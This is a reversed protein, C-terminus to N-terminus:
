SHSDLTSSTVPAEAPQAPPVAPPPPVPKPGTSGAAALRAPAPPRKGRQGKPRPEPSVPSAEIGFRAAIQPLRSAAKRVVTLLAASPEAPLSVPEVRQHVPAFQLADLVTTWRDPGDDATLAASAAEILRASLDPPLPAGAKPPRSSLKLARVIRGDSLASSLDDLWTAQEHDVRRALAERLRAALDRTEDNRASSEAAVVVSRLDRLDLEDVAELAADARDHWEATRLRPLLEEAIALLPEAKVEPRGEARSQSNQKAVAQRVAPIGGQLVQDAIVQQEGPLSALVEKRHARGARLRKPRPRADAVPEDRRPPRREARAPKPGPERRPRSRDGTEGPAGERPSGERSPAPRRAGRESGPAQPRRRVRPDGNEDGGDRRERGPRGGRGGKALTTTVLQEPQARALLELREPEVRTEKPSLVATVSVGDLGSDIEARVVDGVSSGAPLLVADVVGKPQRAGAARWTWTRDDRASTLEVDIRRSM